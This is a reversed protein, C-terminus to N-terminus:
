RNETIQIQEVWFRFKKGFLNLQLWAEVCRNGTKPDKYSALYHHLSFM